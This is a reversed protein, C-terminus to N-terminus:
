FWKHAGAVIGLLILFSGAVGLALWKVVSLIRDEAAGVRNNLTDMERQWPDPSAPQDKLSAELRDLRQSVDPNESRPEYIVGEAVFTHDDEDGPM